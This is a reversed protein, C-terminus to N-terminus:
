CCGSVFWLVQGKSCVVLEFHVDRSKGLDDQGDNEAHEGQGCCAGGESANGGGGRGSHTDGGRNGVVPDVGGLVDGFGPRTFDPLGGEARGGLELTEGFGVAVVAGVVVIAVLGTSQSASSADGADIGAVPGVPVAGAQVGDGRTALAVAIGVSPVRGESRVM